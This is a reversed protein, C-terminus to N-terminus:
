KGNKFYDDIKRAYEFQLDTFTQEYIEHLVKSTDWGGMSMAYREPIGMAAMSSAFGHRLDHFRCHPINKRKLLKRFASEIAKANKQYVYDNIHPQKDILAKIDPTIPLKRTGANSKPSKEIKDKGFSVIVNDILIYDDFVNEWKLGCVESIRLGCRLALNVPLEIDTGSVAELIKKGTEADPTNYIRKKIKPLNTNFREGTFEFIVSSFFGYFASVTKPSLKAALENFAVQLDTKSIKNVNKEQLDTLYRRCYGEYTKLTVPSVSYSRRSIYEKAAQGLTIGSGHSVDKNQTQWELAMREATRRDPDTFSKIIKKGNVTAAAQVRWSGSPLKKANAM